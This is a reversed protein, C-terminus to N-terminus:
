SLSAVTRAGQLLVMVALSIACSYMSWTQFRVPSGLCTIDSQPGWNADFTICSIQSFSPTLDDSDM